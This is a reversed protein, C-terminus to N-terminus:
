CARGGSSVREGWARGCSYGLRRAYHGCPWRVQMGVRSESRREGERMRKGVIAADAATIESFSREDAVAKGRAVAGLGMAPAGEAALALANLSLPQPM